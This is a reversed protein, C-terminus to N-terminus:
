GGFMKCRNFVFVFIIVLIAAIIGVWFGDKFSRFGFLPCLIWNGFFVGLALFIAYYWDM